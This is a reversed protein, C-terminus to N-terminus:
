VSFALPFTDTDAPQGTAEGVGVCDNWLMCFDHQLKPLTNRIHLGFLTSLLGRDYFDSHIDRRAVSILIALSLSDDGHTIYARLDDASLGLVGVALEIWRDNRERVGALIRTAMCRAYHAIHINESTCWRAMTHGMEINQPEQDWPLFLIDKPISSADAIPIASFANMGIDLRRSKVDETLSESSLTREFFGNAAKWFLKVLRHFFRSGSVKVRKSKFLGPVADFFDELEDDNCLANITGGFVRTL